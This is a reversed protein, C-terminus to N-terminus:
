TNKAHMFGIQFLPIGYHGPYTNMPVKISVIKARM